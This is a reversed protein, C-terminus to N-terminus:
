DWCVKWTQRTIVQGGTVRCTLHYARASQVVRLLYRGTGFRDCMQLVTFQVVTKRAVLRWTSNSRGKYLEVTDSANVRSGHPLNSM